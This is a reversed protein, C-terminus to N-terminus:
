ALQNLADIDADILAQFRQTLTADHPDASIPRQLLGVALTLVKEALFWRQEANAGPAVIALATELTALLQDHGARFIEAMRANRASEAVIEAFIRRDIAGENAPDLIRKIWARIAVPDSDALASEFGALDLLSPCDEEVISAVIDEKSAFDRYLQGVLVGSERAILAIGTAHFGREAFLTRAADIVRRRRVEARSTAPVLLRTISIDNM